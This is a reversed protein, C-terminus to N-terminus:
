RTQRAAGRITMLDIVEGLHFIGDEGRVLHVVRPFSGTRGHVEAVVLAAAASMGPLAVVVGRTQWAESSVGAATIANTVQEALPEVLEIVAMPANDGKRFGLKTIRTYGGNRDKSAPAIEHFLKHVLDRDRLRAFAGFMKRTVDGNHQINDCSLLTVPGLGRARRRALAEVM